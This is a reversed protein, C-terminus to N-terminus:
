FGVLNRRQVAASDKKPKALLAKKAKYNESHQIVNNKGDFSLVKATIKQVHGRAEKIDSNEKVDEIKFNQAAKKLEAFEDVRPPNTWRDFDHATMKEASKKAAELTALKYKYFAKEIAIMLNIDAIRREGIHIDRDRLVEISTNLDIDDAAPRKESKEALELDKRPRQSRNTHNNSTSPAATPKDGKRPKPPERSNSRRQGEASKGVKSGKSANSSM